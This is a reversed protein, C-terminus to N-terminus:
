SGQLIDNTQEIQQLLRAKLVLQFDIVLTGTSVSQEFFLSALDNKQDLQAARGLSNYSGSVLMRLIRNRSCGWEEALTLWLKAAEVTGRQFNGAAGYLALDVRQPHHKVDEVNLQCLSDWDGFQWQLQAKMVLNEDHHLYTREDDRSQVLKYVHDKM